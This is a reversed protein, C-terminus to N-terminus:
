GAAIRLVAEKLIDSPDGGSSKMRYDAQACLEVAKRLQPLSYGRAAASLKRVIFDYKIGCTDMIFASGLGEEQALRAAYLRRMQMGLLALMAIPENNKDALLEALISMASNYKKNAIQETMDFIVAQPIHCAVAEVEKVTVREGKTYAAVKEIEPILGSMLDGSTFILRQAAELDIKKGAAAFRRVLWDTLMGQTQSTFKIEKTYKRLAKVLKLRGDPEKEGALVIALVTQEPLEALIKELEAAQSYHNVDMGRLEIFSYDSMFPIMDAAERIKNIDPDAGDIRQYSFSNEGEPLCIKKLEALFQERLYDEPGWLLYARQPGEQKLERILASWNLKENETKKAM